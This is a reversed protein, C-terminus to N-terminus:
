MNLSGAQIEYTRTTEWQTTKVFEIIMIRYSKDLALFKLVNRSPNEKKVVGEDSYQKLLETTYQSFSKENLNDRFQEIKIYSVKGNKFFYKYHYSDVNTCYYSDTWNTTDSKNKDLSNANWKNQSKMWNALEPKTFGIKIYAPDFIKIKQDQGTCTNISGAIIALICFFLAMKMQTSRVTSM